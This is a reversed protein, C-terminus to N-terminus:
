KEMTIAPNQTLTAELTKAIKGTLTRPSRSQKEPWEEEQLFVTITLTAQTSAIAAHQYMPHSQTPLALPSPSIPHPPHNTQRLM